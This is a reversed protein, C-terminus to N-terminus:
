DNQGEKDNSFPSHFLAIHVLKVSIMVLLAILLAVGLDILANISSKGALLFVLSTMVVFVVVLSVLWEKVKKNMKKAKINQM